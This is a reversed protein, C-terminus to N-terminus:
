NFLYVLCDFKNVERTRNEMISVIRKGEMGKQQQVTKREAVNIAELKQPLSISNGLDKQIFSLDNMNQLLLKTFAGVNNRNQSALQMVPTYSM